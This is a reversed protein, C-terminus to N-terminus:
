PEVGRTLLFHIMMCYNAIHVLEEKAKQIGDPFNHPAILNGYHYGIRVLLEGSSQMLEDQTSHPMTYYFQEGTTNLKIAEAIALEDMMKQCFEELDRHIYERNVVKM